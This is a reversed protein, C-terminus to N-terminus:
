DHGFGECFHNHYREEFYKTCQHYPCMGEGGGLDVRMEVMIGAEVVGGSV